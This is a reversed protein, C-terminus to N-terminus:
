EVAYTRDMAAVADEPGKWHPEIWQRRRLSRAPGYVQNRWHGRVIFRQALRWSSGTGGSERLAARIKGDLKVVRGVDFLPRESHVREVARPADKKGRPETPLPGSAEIYSLVNSVIKRLMPVYALEKDTIGETSPTNGYPVEQTLEEFFEKRTLGIAWQTYVPEPTLLTIRFSEWQVEGSPTLATDVLKSVFIRSAGGLAASPPFSLTFADFPLYLPDDSPDGFDTVAIAEFFDPSLSFHPRANRGWLCLSIYLPVMESVIDILSHVNVSASHDIMTSLKSILTEVIRAISTDGFRSAIIETKEKWSGFDGLAVATACRVLEDLEPDERMLRRAEQMTLSRASAAQIEEESMGAFEPPRLQKGVLRSVM